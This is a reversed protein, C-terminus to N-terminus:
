KIYNFIELVYTVHVNKNSFEPQPIYTFHQKFSCFCPIKGQMCIKFNGLFCASIYIYKKWLFLIKLFKCLQKSILIAHERKFHIVTYQICGNHHQMAMTIHFIYMYLVHSISIHLLSLIVACALTCKLFLLM